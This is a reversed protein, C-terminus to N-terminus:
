ALIPVGHNRDDTLIEFAARHETRLIQREGSPQTLILECAALKTNLCHKVGGPPNRYALGVFADRPASIAGEIRIERTASGFRWTFYDFAGQARLTQWLANLAFEQGQRRLVLPTMAPTWFPGLKLRATAVELFSDPEDDFGAVQGWAYRDAHREGWNHNQSGIWNEVAIERGDVVLAGHYAALPLGVLSKARPLAATYMGAPLLFLPEADGTYTLDWAIAHEASAAGGQLVGPGLRAAGIRVGFSEREFACGSLPLEQKVASHRGSEGDFFIAWLEGLAAEPHEAPSFITYRIWFALPRTPHNARQFFSEYHGAPQGPQYRTWNASQVLALAARPPAYPASHM